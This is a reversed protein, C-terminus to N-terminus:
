RSRAAPLWRAEQAHPAAAWRRGAGEGAGCRRAGASRRRPPPRRVCPVCVCVCSQELDRSLWGGCDPGRGSAAPNGAGRGRCAGARFGPPRWLGRAPGPPLPRGTGARRGEAGATVGGGGRSPRPAPRAASPGPGPSPGPSPPSSRPEPAEPPPARTEASLPASSAGAPRGTPHPPTSVRTSHPHEAARSTRPPM